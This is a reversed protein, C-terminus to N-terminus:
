SSKARNMELDKKSNQIYTFIENFLTKYEPIQAVTRLVHRNSQASISQPQRCLKTASHGSGVECRLLLANYKRQLANYQADVENLLSVGHSQATVLHGRYADPHEGNRLDEDKSGTELLRRHNNCRKLVQSTEWMESVQEESPFFLTGPLMRSVSNSRLLQRLEEVEVEVESRRAKYGELLTVRPELESMERALPRDEQEAGRKPDARFEAPGATLQVSHLLATHEDEEWEDEELSPTNASVAHENPTYQDSQSIAPKEPELLDPTMKKIERQLEEVQGQLGNISETLGEIKLQASRNELALRRNSQELDRATADLQEYVKAHQDNVSRSCKWRSLYISSKRYSSKTPPTTEQLREELEHNRELLNKGLEAALHLDNELDRHDYWLEEEKIEFEEEAIVDTLKKTVSHESKVCSTPNRERARQVSQPLRLVANCLAANQTVKRVLM